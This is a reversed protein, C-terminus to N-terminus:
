KLIPHSINRNLRQSYDSIVTILGSVTRNRTKMFSYGDLWTLNNNGKKCNSCWCVANFLSVFFENDNMGAQIM